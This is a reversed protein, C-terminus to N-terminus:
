RAYLVGWWRGLRRNRVSSSHCSRVSYCICAPSGIRLDRGRAERARDHCDLLTALQADHARFVPVVDLLLAHRRLTGDRLTLTCGLGLGLRARRTRVRNRNRNRNRSRHVRGRRRSEGRRWSPHSRIKPRSIIETRCSCSFFRLRHIYEVVEYVEAVGRSGGGRMGVGCRTPVDQVQGREGSWLVDRLRNSGARGFVDVRCERWRM